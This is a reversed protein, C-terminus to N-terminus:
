TSNRVILEHPLFISQQDTEGMIQRLLMEVAVQGIRKRPQATTTLTPTVMNCVELNDTGMVAIDEPIHLGVERIARMAGAAVNDSNCLVARPRTSHKLLAQMSEYGGLFTDSGRRVWGIAPAMNHRHMVDRYANERLATSILGNSSSILAIDRYGLKILFELAECYATYNDISVHPLKSTESYECCQVLPFSAAIHELDSDDLRSSLFIAGDAQRNNLLKTAERERDVISNTAVLLLTYGHQFAAKNIGSLVDILFMNSFDNMVVLITRTNNFVHSKRNNIPNYDLQSVVELVRKRTAVSVKEPANLARSVTATSVGAAAAIDAINALNWEDRGAQFSVCTNHCLIGCFALYTM